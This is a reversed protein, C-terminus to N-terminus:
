SDEELVLDESANLKDIEGRPSKFGYTNQIKVHKQLQGSDSDSESFNEEEISMSKEQMPAMQDVAKMGFSTQLEAKPSLAFEKVYSNKGSAVKRKPKRKSTLNIDDLTMNKNSLEQM